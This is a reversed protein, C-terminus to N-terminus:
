HHSQLSESTFDIEFIWIAFLDSESGPNCEYGLSNEFIALAILSYPFDFGKIRWINLNNITISSFSGREIIKQCHHLISSEVTNGLEFCGFIEQCFELFETHIIM